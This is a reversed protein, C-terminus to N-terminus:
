FELAFLKLGKSRKSIPDRILNDEPSRSDSRYFPNILQLINDAKLAQILIGSYTFRETRLENAREQRLEAATDKARRSIETEFTETTGAQQPRAAAISMGAFIILPILIKKM